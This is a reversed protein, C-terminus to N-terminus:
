GGQAKARALAFDVCEAISRQDSLPDHSTAALVGM